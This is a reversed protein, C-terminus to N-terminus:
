TTTGAVMITFFEVGSKEPTPNKMFEYKQKKM